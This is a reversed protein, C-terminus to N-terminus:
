ALHRAMLHSDYAVGDRLLSGIETGYISFGAREYLGIASPNAAGVALQLLTVQGRAHAIAAAMLAAGLGQGRHSRRVYMGWIYGVHRRRHMTDVRFGLMGVWAGAEDTAVFVPNRTLSAAFWELPHDAEDEYASAYGLPDERLSEFRLDRYAAADEAGLRIIPM